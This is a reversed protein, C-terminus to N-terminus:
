LKRKRKIGSLSLISSAIVRVTYKITAKTTQSHCRSREEKTRWISRIGPGGFTKSKPFTKGRSPDPLDKVRRKRQQKRGKKESTHAITVILIYAM